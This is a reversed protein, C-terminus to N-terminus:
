ISTYGLKQLREGDVLTVVWYCDDDGLIIMMAKVARDQFARAKILTNFKFTTM